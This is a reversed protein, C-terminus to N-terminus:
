RRQLGALRLLTELVGLDVKIGATHCSLDPDPSVCALTAYRLGIGDCAHYFPNYLGAGERRPRGPKLFGYRNKRLELVLSGAPMFLLNSLGAGHNSLLVETESFLQMQEAISLTEAFVTEFGYPKLYAELAPENLIKRFRAKVRSLYIRRHPMGQGVGLRQRLVKLLEPRHFSPPGVFPPLLLQRAQLRSKRPLFLPHRIGLLGLTHLVYPKRHREALIVLPDPAQELAQVLRPLAEFLWHYYEHSWHDDVSVWPRPDACTIRRYFAQKLRRWPSYVREMEPVRLSQPLLRGNKFVAGDEYLTVDELTEVQLAPLHEVHETELLDEDQPRYGLPKSKVYDWAPLM